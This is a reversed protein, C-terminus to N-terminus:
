ECAGGALQETFHALLLHPASHLEQCIGRRQLYPEGPQLCPFALLSPFCSFCLVSFIFYFELKQAELCGACPHPGWNIQHKVGFAGPLGQPACALALM